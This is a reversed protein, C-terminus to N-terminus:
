RRRGVPRHLHRLRRGSPTPVPPTPQRPPPSPQVIEVPWNTPVGRWNTYTPNPTAGAAKTASAKAAPDPHPRAPAASAHPPAMPVNESSLEARQSAGATTGGPPSPSQATPASRRPRACPPSCREVLEPDTGYTGLVTAGSTGSLEVELNHQVVNQMIASHVAPLRQIETGAAEESAPTHGTSGGGPGAAAGQGPIISVTQTRGVAGAPCRMNPAPRAWTSRTSTM